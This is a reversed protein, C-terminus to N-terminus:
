PIVRSQHTDTLAPPGLLEGPRVELGPLLNTRYVGSAPVITEEWVDGQRVLAHMQRTKPDLIWYERVGM